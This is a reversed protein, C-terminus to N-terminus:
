AHHLSWDRLAKLAAALASGLPTLQYLVRLPPGPDVRRSVLHEADLERLCDGLTAENLSDIEALLELQRRAGADLACLVSANPDRAMKTLAAIFKPHTTDHHTPMNSKDVDDAARVLTLASRGFYDEECPHRNTNGFV